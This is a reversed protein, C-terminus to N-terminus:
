EFNMHVCELVQFHKNSKEYVYIYHTEFWKYLDYVPSIAKEREFFNKLKKSMKITDEIPLFALSLIM